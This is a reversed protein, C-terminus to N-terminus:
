KSKLMYSMLFVGIKGILWEAAIVAGTAYAERSYSKNKIPISDFISNYSVSHTGIQNNERLSKIKITTQNSRNRSTWKEYNSNSIIDNTLSIATGSPSDIKKSHHMENLEVSYNNNKMLSSLYKNLIFFLNVGISFNSSYLFGLKEKHVKQEIKKFENPWGKTGSVVSINNQITDYINRFTSSTACFDIAIDIFKTINKNTMNTKSFITHGRELAVSEIAKEMKGHGIIAIKM